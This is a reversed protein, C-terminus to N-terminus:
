AKEWPFIDRGFHGGSATALYIPKRLDFMDVLARPTLSYKESLQRALEADPETGTGFTNVYLALPEAVGIAYSLQILCKQAKGSAVIQKALFRAAYAASRDVKTPDKGSFAGGGHPAAGGYTDVIIKRGTLGTDAAPGGLVFSGTPNVLIRTNKDIFGAPLVKRWAATIVDTLMSHSIGAAHQYSVLLTHARVPKGGRYELTLQSKGDPGLKPHTTKSLSELEHLVAHAYHLPAPMLAPTDSCAFGFMIGQDGAGESGRQGADVGQAIEASQAHMHNTLNFTAADFGRAKGNTYGIHALTDRVISKFDPPPASTRYEGALVVNNETVLTECAVRAEPDVALFADLIADSIQDAVKDPHGAAVAESTFLGNLPLM